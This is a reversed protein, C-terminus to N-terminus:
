RGGRRVVAEAILRYVRDLVVPEAQDQSLHDALVAVMGDRVADAETRSEIARSGACVLDCREATARLDAVKGALVVLARELAAGATTATATGASAVTSGAWHGTVMQVALIHACVHHNERAGCSCSWGLLPGLTVIHTTSADVEVVARVIRARQPGDDPMYTKRITVKGGLLYALAVDRAKM